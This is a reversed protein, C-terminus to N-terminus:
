SRRRPSVRHHQRRAARGDAEPAQHLRHHDELQDAHRRALPPERLVPRLADRGRGRIRGGGEQHRRVARPRRRRRRRARRAARPGADARDAAPRPHPGPQPHRLHVAGDAPELPPHPPRLPRRGRAAACPFRPCRWPAHDKGDTRNLRRPANGRLEPSRVRGHDSPRAAHPNAARPLAGPGAPPSIAHRPRRPLSPSAPAAPRGACSPCPSVARCRGRRCWSPSRPARHRRPLHPQAPPRRGRGVIGRHDGQDAPQHLRGLGLQALAPVTPIPM